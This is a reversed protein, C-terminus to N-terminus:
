RTCVDKAIAWGAYVEYFRQLGRLITTAGAIRQSAYGKWGGM